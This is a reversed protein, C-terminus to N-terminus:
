EQNHFCLKNKIKFYIAQCFSQCQKPEIYNEYKKQITQIGNWRPKATKKSSILKSIKKSKSLEACKLKIKMFFNKVYTKKTRKLQM